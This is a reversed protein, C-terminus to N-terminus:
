DQRRDIVLALPANPAGGPRYPVEGYLDGPGATPQGSRSIRAVITLQDFDGLSRGPLMTNADSLTFEGPLDAAAARLVAVPPGGGAARAFVFLAARPDPEPLEPALSIQLRIGAADPSTAEDEAEASHADAEAVATSAEGSDLAAIQQEILGAVAPPPGLAVLRTWRERAVDTRQESLAVLGGYWLAKMNEPERALVDEIMQGAEGASNARDQLLLAEALALKLESDPAETLAWVQRLALEADAFRGLALYSQALYRWGQADGPVDAVRQELRAVMDELSPPNAAAARQSWTTVEMYLLAAAPVTALVLGLAAWSVGEVRRRWLPILMFSLAAAAMAAALSWFLM